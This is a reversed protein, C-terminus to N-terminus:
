KTEGNHNSSTIEKIDKSLFQIKTAVEGIKELIFKAERLTELWGEMIKGTSNDIRSIAINMESINKAMNLRTKSDVPSSPDLVIDEWLKVIKDASYSLQSISNRINHCLDLYFPYSNFGKM